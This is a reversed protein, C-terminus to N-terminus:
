PAEAMGFLHSPLSDRLSRISVKASWNWSRADVLSLCGPLRLRQFRVEGALAFDFEFLEVVGAVFLVAGAAGVLGPEVPIIAGAGHIVGPSVRREGHPVRRGHGSVGPLAQRQHILSGVGEDDADRRRGPRVADLILVGVLM